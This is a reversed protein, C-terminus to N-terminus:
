SPTGEPPTASPCVSALQEAMWRLPATGTSHAGGSGESTELRLRLSAVDQPRDVDHWVPLTAVVLGTEAARQCTQDYVDASGWDIQRVVAPQYRGAALTWYGGDPTPGIALDAERLATPIEALLREPVDPSDGGFFAVPGDDRVRVAARWVRELRQGLDGPGQALVTSGRLELRDALAAASDDPSVALIVRAAAASLRAATCQLMVEAVAAATAATFVGGDQLRTKVRGAAPDKAMLVATVDQLVRDSM